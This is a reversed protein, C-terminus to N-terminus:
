TENERRWTEKTRDILDPTSYVTLVGADLADTAM